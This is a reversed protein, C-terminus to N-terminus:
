PQILKNVFKYRKFFIELIPFISWCFLEFSTPTWNLLMQLNRKGQGDDKNIKACSDLYDCWMAMQMQM